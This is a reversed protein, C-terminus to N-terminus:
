FTKAVEELLNILIFSLFKNFLNILIYNFNLKYCVDIFITLLSHWFYSCTEIFYINM